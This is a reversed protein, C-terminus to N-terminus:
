KVESEVSGRAFTTTIIDGPALESADTVARGRCRSISYGRRLTSAPSLAELLEELAKLRDARRQVINGVSASLASAVDPGTRRRNSDLVNRVLAPINGTYYALQRRQAEISDVVTHLIEEGVRRVATLAEAMRGILVEAAATPTKVRTNAVYDLVTTDRDHGIGVVVPLPFQAVNFALEYDDFSALDSVAGGGRIIVVCDFDDVREMIAELAAIVGASTREGQMPSAFLETHFALRYPNLHLHKMFDGYGAAGRASIVAVRAPVDSWPLSRNLDYVGDDRLRAIIEMRRRALDGVTYGPDIDNIVLTFGYVAHYNVSVRAMIKMDSALPSGTAAAFAPSLRAFTSAWIVARSKALPAGTAPDKEILEMYCHGGSSRVDSTEATIWIDTLGPTAAITRSIRRCFEGLSIAIRTSKM